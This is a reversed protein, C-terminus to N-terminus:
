PSDRSLLASPKIKGPSYGTIRKFQRTLHSQDAFGTAFAVQTVPMGASILSKSKAVRLSILYQRPTIGYCRKFRRILHYKSTSFRQSLEEITVDRCFNERIFKQIQGNSGCASKSKTKERTLKEAEDFIAHCITTLHRRTMARSKSYSTAFFVEAIQVVKRDKIVFSQRLDDEFGNIGTLESVLSPHPYIAQYSLCAQSSTTGGTHAVFPFHIFLENAQATLDSGSCRDTGKRILQIVFTDHLHLPFRFNVYEANVIETGSLEDVLTVNTNASTSSM